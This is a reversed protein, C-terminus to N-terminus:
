ASSANTAQSRSSVRDAVSRRFEPLQWISAPTGRHTRGLDEPHELLSDVRHGHQAATETAALARILFHIFENGMKARRQQGALQNPFWWPHGRDRCPQPPLSNAWNARSWSGCPPSLIILDFVGSEIDSIYGAQIERSM